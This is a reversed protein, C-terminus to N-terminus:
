IEGRAPGRRLPVMSAVFEFVVTGRTFPITDGPEVGHSPKVREGNLHVNDGAAAAARTKSLRVTFLWRDIRM